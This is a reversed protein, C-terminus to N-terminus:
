GSPPASVTGASFASDLFAKGLRACATPIVADPPLGISGGGLSVRDGIRFSAGRYEIHDGHWSTAPTPFLVLQRDTGTIVLCGDVVQLVGDARAQLFVGGEFPFTAMPSEGQTARVTLFTAPIIVAAVVAAILIRATSRRPRRTAPTGTRQRLTRPAVNAAQAFTQRLRDALHDDDLHTM